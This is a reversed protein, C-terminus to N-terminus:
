RGDDAALESLRTVEAAGADLRQVLVIAEARTVTGDRAEPSRAIADALTLNKWVEEFNAGADELHITKGDPTKYTLSMPGESSRNHDIAVWAQRMAAKADDIEVVSGDPLMIKATGRAEGTKGMQALAEAYGVLLDEPKSVTVQNGETTTFQLLPESQACLPLCSTVVALAFPIAFKKM